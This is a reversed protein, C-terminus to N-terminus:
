NQRRRPMYLWLLVPIALALGAGLGKKAVQGVTSVADKVQDIITERRYYDGAAKSKEWDKCLKSDPDECLAMDSRKIVGNYKASIESVEEELYVWRAIIGVVVVALIVAPIIWGLSLQNEQPQVIDLDKGDASPRIGLELQNVGCMADKLQEIENLAAFMRDALDPLEPEGLNVKNAVAFEHTLKIQKWQLKLAYSKLSVRRAIAQAKNWLEREKSNAVREAEVYPIGKNVEAGIM